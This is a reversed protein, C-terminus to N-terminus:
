FYSFSGETWGPQCVCVGEVPDCSGHETCRCSESCNRGYFRRPCPLDCSPGSFGPKCSSLLDLEYIYIYIYRGIVNRNMQSQFKFEGAIFTEHVNLNQLACM